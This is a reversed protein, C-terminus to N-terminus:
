HIVLEKVLGLLALSIFIVTINKIASESLLKFVKLAIPMALLCGVMLSAVMSYDMFGRSGLTLSVALSLILGVPISTAVASKISLGGSSALAPVVLVGGGVGTFGMLLGTIGSLTTLGLKSLSDRIAKTFMSAVSLIGALLVALMLYFDVEKRVAPDTILTLSLACVITIPVCLYLFKRGVGWNVGGQKAHGATMLIKALFAYFSGTAVALTPDMGFLVILSPVVLVGAGVGSMFILMSFVFGAVVGAIDISLLSSFEM